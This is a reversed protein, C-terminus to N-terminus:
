EDVSFIMLSQFLLTLTFIFNFIGHMQKHIVKRATHRSAHPLVWMIWHEKPTMQVGSVVSTPFDNM